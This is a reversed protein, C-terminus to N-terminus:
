KGRATDYDALFRETEPNDLIEKFRQYGNTLSLGSFEGAAVDHQIDHFSNAIAALKSTPFPNQKM